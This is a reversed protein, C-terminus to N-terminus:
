MASRSAPCNLNASANKRARELARSFGEWDSKWNGATRRAGQPTGPGYKRGMSGPAETAARLEGPASRNPLRRFRVLRGVRAVVTRPRNRQGVSPPIGHAPHRNDRLRPGVLAGMALVVVVGVVIYRRCSAGSAGAGDAPVGEPSGKEISPPFVPLERASNEERQACEGGAEVKGAKRMNLIKVAGPPLNESQQNGRPSHGLGGAAELALPAEVM